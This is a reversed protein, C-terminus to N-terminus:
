CCHPRAHWHGDSPDTQRSWLWGAGYFGDCHCRRLHRHLRSCRSALRPSVVVPQHNRLVIHSAYTGSLPWDSDFSEHGTKKLNRCKATMGCECRDCKMCPATVSFVVRQGVQLDPNRTARVVGVREHGLISPCPTSRRGLVTHRDSGCITATTLEVLAEGDQLDPIPVEHIRFDGDGHWVLARTTKLSPNPTTM